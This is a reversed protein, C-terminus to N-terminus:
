GFDIGFIRVGNIRFCLIAVQHAKVAPRSLAYANLRLRAFALRGQAPVPVRRQMNARMRMSPKVERCVFQEAAVIAAIGPLGDAAVESSLKVAIVKWNHAFDPAGIG